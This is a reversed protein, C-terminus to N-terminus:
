DCSKSHRPWPGRVVIDNGNFHLIDYYRTIIDNMRSIIDSHRLISSNHQEWSWRSELDHSRTLVSRQNTLCARLWSNIGGM